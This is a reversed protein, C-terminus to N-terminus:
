KNKFEDYINLGLAILVGVFFIKSKLLFIEPTDFFLAVAYFGVLISLLFNVTKKM